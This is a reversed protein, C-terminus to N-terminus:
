QKIFAFITALQVIELAFIKMPAILLIGTIITLINQKEQSLFFLTKTIKKGDKEIGVIM